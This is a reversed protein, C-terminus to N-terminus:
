EKLYDELRRRCIESLSEGRRVSKIRAAKWIAEPVQITHKTSVEAKRAPTPKKM